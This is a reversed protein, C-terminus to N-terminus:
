THRRGTVAYAGIAMAGIALTTGGIVVAQPITAITGLVGVTVGSFTQMGPGFMAYSGIVRGRIATPAELQIIAMETSEATIKSVGALVLMIIALWLQATLAFLVASLGMAAAAVAAASPVAKIWGTAELAFGGLVGGAGMAFLLVGYTFDSDGGTPTLIGGFVPMATQLVAGITISALAALLLMGIISRNHRVEVLVKLSALLTTKTTRVGGSRLHGTFPTRILFLTLPLYFIINIFIGWTAGSRFLM